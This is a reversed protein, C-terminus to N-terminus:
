HPEEPPIQPRRLQRFFSKRKKEVWLRGRYDFAYKPSGKAPFEIPGSPEESPAELEADSPTTVTPASEPLISESETVVSAESQADVTETPPLANTDALNPTVANSEPALANTEAHVIEVPASANAAADMATTATLLADSELILAPTKADLTPVATLPADSELVAPAASEVHEGPADALLVDTAALTDSEDTRDSEGETLTVMILAILYVALPAAVLIVFAINM